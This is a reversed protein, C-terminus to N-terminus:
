AWLEEATPARPEALTYADPRACTLTTLTGRDDLTFTVAVILLDMHVGLWDDRVPVLRNLPWPRVGDYTWGQVTYTVTTGRGLRVNREWVARDRCARIDVQEEALLTLPRYRGIESDTVSASPEAAVTGYADDGGQMQGKVTYSGYREAVAFRGRAALVNAGLALEVNLRERGARTIELGGRGDALLLVGRHRAARELAQFVTEGEEVAFTRFTPSATRIEVPIGFPRTLRHAIQSLDQDKFEASAASCDVLDATADRGSLRASHRTADYDLEVTDVHGTIVPLDDLLLACAVGPRLLRRAPSDPLRADTALTFAGSVAEISREIRVSTWGSYRQDGLQLVAEPEPM